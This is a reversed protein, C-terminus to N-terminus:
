ASSNPHTKRISAPSSAIAIALDRSISWAMPPPVVSSTNTSHIAVEYRGPEAIGTMPNTVSKTTNKRAAGAIAARNPSANSSIPLMTTSAAGSNSTTNGIRTARSGSAAEGIRTNGARKASTTRITQRVKAPAVPRGYKTAANKARAVSAAQDAFYRVGSVNGCPRAM